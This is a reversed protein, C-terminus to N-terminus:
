KFYNIVFANNQWRQIAATLKDATVAVGRQAMTTIFAKIAASAADAEDQSNAYVNFKVEYGSM